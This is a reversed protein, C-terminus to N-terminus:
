FCTRESRARENKVEDGNREGWFGCDGAPARLSFSFFAFSFVDDFVDAAFNGVPVFVNSM